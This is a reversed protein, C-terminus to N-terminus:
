NPSTLPVASHFGTKEQRPLLNKERLLSNKIESWSTDKLIQSLKIKKGNKLENM